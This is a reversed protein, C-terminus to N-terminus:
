RRSGLLSQVMELSESVRIRNGNAFQIESLPTDAAKHKFISSEVTSVEHVDIFIPVRARALELRIWDGALLSMVQELSEQVLLPRRGSVLIRTLSRTGLRKDSEHVAYVRSAHILLTAGKRDTLSVMGTTQLPREEVWGASVLALLPILYIPRLRTLM